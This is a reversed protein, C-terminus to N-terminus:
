FRMVAPSEESSASSLQSQAWGSWLSLALVALMVLGIVIKVVSGVLMGLWTGLGVSGAVLWSRKAVIEGIVAGVLPMFLIGFLGLFMGAVTGVLAGAIGYASAGAKKAGLAQAAWEVVLGIITLLALCLLKLWGIIEFNGLWAALLCAGFILPLGPIAPIITGVLGLLALAIVLWWLGFTGWDINTVVEIM